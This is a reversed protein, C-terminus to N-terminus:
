DAGAEASQQGDRGASCEAGDNHETTKLPPAAFTKMLVGWLAAYQPNAMRKNHARIMHMVSTHDMNWLKAIAPLSVHPFLHKVMTAAAGRSYALPRHRNRSTRWFGYDYGAHAAAVKLVHEPKLTASGPVPVLPLEVVKPPPPPPPPEPPVYDPDLRAQAQEKAVLRAELLQRATGISVGHIAAYHAASGGFTFHPIPEKDTGYSVTGM